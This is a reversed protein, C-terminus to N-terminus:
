QNTLIKKLGEQLGEELANEFSTYNKIRGDEERSFWIEIKNEESVYSVGVRYFRKGEKWETIVTVDVRHIERLWRQLLSQTPRELIDDLPEGYTKNLIGNVIAEGRLFCNNCRVNFGKDKALKATDFLVLQDEM